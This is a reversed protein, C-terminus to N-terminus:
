LVFNSSEDLFNMLHPYIFCSVSARCLYLWQLSWFLPPPPIPQHQREPVSRDGVGRVADRGMEDAQFVEHSALLKM